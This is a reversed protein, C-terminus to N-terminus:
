RSGGESSDAKAGRGPADRVWWEWSRAYAGFSTVHTGQVRNNVGTVPDYYYLSTYPQDQVIRAAVSRWLPNAGEPRAQAAARAILSDTEASSYGTLNYAGGSTWMASVDPTLSVGWSTLVAEFDHDVLMRQNLAGLELMQIRMDAGVAKWQQQLITSVDQRRQNGTNTLLTFRLPRGDKERIGDGDADRWGASDLLARAGATDYALPRVAPDYLDRFIPPYPGTAPTAFEGMALTQVIGPVNVAMGLARRVRADRFAAVKRQNYAVFEWYRDDEREWRLNPAQGRLERVREFTIGRGVDVTGNRLETVRTGPDPVVRLVIRDLRPRFEEPFHPNHVLTTQRGAQRAGVKWPGSVVMTELRGLVPHSALREPPTSAYVHEPMIGTGADFLMEPYHRKFHFVVTSDNEARVSDLQKTVDSHPSAARPDALTRYTWVVDRATIPKGDSWRLASRMRFRIATSDPGTYEHLWAIAMPSDDSTQYVLRGNEWAQATLGMYMMDMLDGDPAGTFLLPLPQQVDGAEAVVVTGGLKPEAGGGRPAATKEGSGGGGDTCAGLVVALAAATRRAGRMWGGTYNM